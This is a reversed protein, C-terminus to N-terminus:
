FFKYYFFVSIKNIDYGKKIIKKIEDKNNNYIANRIENDM